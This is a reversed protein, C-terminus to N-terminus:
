DTTTVLQELMQLAELTYERREEASREADFSLMTLALARRLIYCSVLPM